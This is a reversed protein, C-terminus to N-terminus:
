PATRLDHGTAVSWETIVRRAIVGMGPTTTSYLLAPDRRDQARWAELTRLLASLDPALTLYAEARQHPALGVREGVLRLRGAPTAAQARLDVIVPTDASFTAEIWGMATAAALEERALLGNRRRARLLAGVQEAVASIRVDHRSTLSGRDRRGESARWVERLLEEFDPVFTSNAAAAKDYAAPRGDDGGFSLDVGFMRWYANRRVAEPNPRVASTSMTTGLLGSAGFLLVETADLWRQTAVSPTGLGEGARFAHVVRGIIQAARTNEICYSSGWHDWAPHDSPALDAYAGLAVLARRGTGFHPPDPAWLDALDWVQEMHLTLDVPDSTLIEDLARPSGQEARRAILHSIM